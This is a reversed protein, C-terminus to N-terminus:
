KKTCKKQVFQTILGVLIGAILPVVICIVVYLATPQFGTEPSTDTFLGSALLQINQLM